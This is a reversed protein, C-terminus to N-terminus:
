TGELFFLYYRAIIVVKLGGQIVEMSQRLDDRDMPFSYTCDVIQRLFPIEYLEKKLVAAIPTDCSAVIALIDFLGQHNGYLLFGGGDPINEKGTVQLDINGSKVATKLIYQIHKYKVDEPYKDTHKAYHCLKWYATPVKWFNKLVMM